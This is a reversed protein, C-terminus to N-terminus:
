YPATGSDLLGRLRMEGVIGQILKRYVEAAPTRDAPDPLQDKLFASLDTYTLHGVQMQDVAARLKEAQAGCKRRKGLFAEMDQARVAECLDDLRQYRESWLSSFKRPSLFALYHTRSAGEHEDSALSLLACKM